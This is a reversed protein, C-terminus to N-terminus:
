GNMSDDVILLDHKASSLNEYVDSSFGEHLVIKPFEKHFDLLEKQIIKYCWIIRGDFPEALISGSSRILQYVWTSKGCGSIKSYYYYYDLKTINDINKM